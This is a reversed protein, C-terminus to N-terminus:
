LRAAPKALLELITQFDAEGLEVELPQNWGEMRALIEIAYVRDGVDNKEDLAIRALLGLVDERTTLKSM